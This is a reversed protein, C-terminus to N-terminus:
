LFIRVCTKDLSYKAWSRTSVLLVDVTVSNFTFSISYKAKLGSMIINYNKDNLIGSCYVTGQRGTM